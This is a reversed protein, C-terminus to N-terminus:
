LANRSRVIREPLEIEASLYWAYLDKAKRLGSKEALELYYPPNYTM